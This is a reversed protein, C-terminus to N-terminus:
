FIFTPDIRTATLYTSWTTNGTLVPNSVRFSAPRTTDTVDVAFATFASGLSSATCNTGNAATNTGACWPALTCNTLSGANASTTTATWNSAGFHRLVILVRGGRGAPITLVNNGPTVVIIDGTYSVIKTPDFLNAVDTIGDFIYQTSFVEKTVNSAVIPKKLEVEYSVWMDGIANGSALQGTTAVHTVGLDYMLKSDGAPPSGTRVYMVNFPNEKPDCEIPHAMPEHPVVENACYENLMEVKSSPAVDSSRYTTQLMVTGLSPSTGSIASGSSPIYHFVVGRFKFEQFKNAIGSLWPFTSANGPNLEYSAQVTFATSSRIEGLFERHRIVVTQGDNHMMPISSAAKLSQKVISNTSVTYDGSGLWRSIAGGLSSGVANGTSPSGFLSGIAGGGLGGLGRLAAGLLTMEKKQVQKKAKTRKTKNTKQRLKVM